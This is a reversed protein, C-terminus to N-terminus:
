DRPSPSTYLLCPKHGAVRAPDIDSCALEAGNIASVARVKMDAFDAVGLFFLLAEELIKLSLAQAAVGEESTVAVLFDTEGIRHRIDQYALHEDFKKGLYAWVADRKRPWRDGSRKRIADVSIVTVCGREVLDTGALRELAAAAGGATIREINNPESPSM